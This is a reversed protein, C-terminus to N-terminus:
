DRSREKRLINKQFLTDKSYIFLFHFIIYFSLFDGLDPPLIFFVLLRIISKAVKITVTPFQFIIYLLLFRTPHVTLNFTAVQCLQQVICLSVFRSSWSQPSAFNYGSIFLIITTFRDHLSTLIANEFRYHVLKVILLECFGKLLKIRTKSITSLSSLSRQLEILQSSM